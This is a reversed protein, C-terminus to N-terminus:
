KISRINASEKARSGAPSTARRPGAFSLLVHCNLYGVFADIAPGAFRFTGIVSDIFPSGLPTEGVAGAYFASVLSTVAADLGVGILGLGGLAHVNIKDYAIFAGFTDTEMILGLAGGNARDVAAYFVFVVDFRLFLQERFFGLQM